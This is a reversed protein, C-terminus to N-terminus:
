FTCIIKIIQIKMIVKKFNFIFNIYLYLLLLNIFLYNFM